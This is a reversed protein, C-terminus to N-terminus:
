NLFAEFVSGEFAAVWGVSIIPVAFLHYDVRLLCSHYFFDELSVGGTFATVFNGYTKRFATDEIAALWEAGCINVNNEMTFFIRSSIFYM